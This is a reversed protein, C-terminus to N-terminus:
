ANAILKVAQQKLGKPAKQAHDDNNALGQAIIELIQQKVARRMVEKKLQAMTGFYRSVLGMSVGARGAIADRTIHRYGVERALEVAANLISDTRLAPSTRSKSVPVTASVVGEASLEAVFAAFSTGMIHRFSGDPIDARTCLDGRSLNILGIEKVMQIAINKVEKRNM